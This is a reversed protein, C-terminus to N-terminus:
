NKVIVVEARCLLHRDRMYGDKEVSLIHGDEKSADPETDIVKCTDDDSLGNEFTVKIVNHKILLSNLKKKVNLFRKIVKQSDDSKNWDHDEIIKEERSFTDLVEIVDRLVEDLIKEQEQKSEEIQNSLAKNSKLIASIKNEIIELM